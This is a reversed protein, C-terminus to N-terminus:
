LKVGDNERLLKQVKRAKSSNLRKGQEIDGIRANVAAFATEVKMDFNGMVRTFNEALEEIKKAM